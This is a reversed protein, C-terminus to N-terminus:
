CSPCGRFVPRFSLFCNHHMIEPHRIIVDYQGPPLFAHHVRFMGLKVGLVVDLELVLRSHGSHYKTLVRAVYELHLGGSAPM